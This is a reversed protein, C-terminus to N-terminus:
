FDDKEEPDPGARGAPGGGPGAEGARKRAEAEAKAVLDDLADDAADRQFAPPVDEPEPTPAATPRAKPIVVQPRSSDAKAASEEPTPIGASKRIEDVLDRMKAALRDLEAHAHRQSLKGERGEVAIRNMDRVEDLLRETASRLHGYKRRDLGAPRSQHLQEFVPSEVETERAQAIFFTAVFVFVAAVARFFNDPIVWVALLMLLAGFWVIQMNLSSGGSQREAM